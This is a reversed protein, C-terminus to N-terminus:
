KTLDQRDELIAADFAAQDVASFPPNKVIPNCSADCTCLQALGHRARSIAVIDHPDGQRMPQCNSDCVCFGEAAWAMAIAISLAILAVLLLLSRVIM